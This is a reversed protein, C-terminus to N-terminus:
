KKESLFFFVMAAALYATKEPREGATYTFDLYSIAGFQSLTKAISVAEESNFGCPTTETTEFVNADISVAVGSNDKLAGNLAFLLDRRLQRIKDRYFVRIKKKEIAKANKPTVREKRAGFLIVSGSYIFGSFELLIRDLVSDPTLKGESSHLDASSDFCVLGLSQIIKSQYLGKIGGFTITGNGGIIIPVIGKHILFQVVQNLNKTLAGGKVIVNGVDAIFNKPKNFHNAMQYFQKRFSDASTWGGEISDPAGIITYRCEDPLPDNGTWFHTADGLFEHNEHEKKFFDRKRVPILMENITAVSAM